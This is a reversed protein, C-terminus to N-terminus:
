RQGLIKLLLTNNSAIVIRDWGFDAIRTGDLMAEIDDFLISGVILYKAIQRLAIPIWRQADEGLLYRRILVRQSAFENQEIIKIDLAFHAGIPVLPGHCGVRGVKDFFCPREGITTAFSFEAIWGFSVKLDSLWRTSVKPISAFLFTLRVKAKTLEDGIASM